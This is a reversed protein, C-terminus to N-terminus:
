GGGLGKAVAQIDPKFLSTLKRIRMLTLTAYPLVMESHNGRMFPAWADWAV